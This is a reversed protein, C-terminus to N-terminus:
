HKQVSGNDFVRMEKRVIVLAGISAHFHLKGTKKFFNNCVLWGVLLRVHHNMPLNCKWYNQNKTYLRSLKKQSKFFLYKITHKHTVSM